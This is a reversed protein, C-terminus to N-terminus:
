GNSGEQLPQLSTFTPAIDGIPYMSFDLKFVGYKQIIKWKESVVELDEAECTVEMMVTAKFKQKM